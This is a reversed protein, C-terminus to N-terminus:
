HIGGRKETTHATRRIRDRKKQIRLWEVRQETAERESTFVRTWCLDMYQILMVKNGHKLYMCNVVINYATFRIQLVHIIIANNYM